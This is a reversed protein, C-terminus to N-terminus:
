QGNHGRIPRGNIAHHPKTTKAEYAVLCPKCGDPQRRLQNPTMYVRDRGRILFGCWARDEVVFGAKKALHAEGTNSPKSM